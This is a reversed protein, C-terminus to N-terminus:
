QRIVRKLGVHQVGMLKGEGKETQVFQNWAPLSTGFTKKKQQAAFFVHTALSIKSEKIKEKMKCGHQKHQCMERSYKEDQHYDCNQTTKGGM